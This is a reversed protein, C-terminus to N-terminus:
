FDFYSIWDKNKHEYEYARCCKKYKIGSGCLCPKNVEGKAGNKIKEDTITLRLIKIVMQIDKECLLRMESFHKLEDSFNNINFIISDVLNKDLSTFGGVSIIKQDTDNDVLVQHMVEVTEKNTQPWLSKALKTPQILKFGHKIGNYVDVTGGQRLTVQGEDVAEEIFLKGLMQLNGKEVKVSEDIVWNLNDMEEKTFRQKNGKVYDILKNMGLIKIIQDRSFGKHAQKYFGLIQSNNGEIYTDVVKSLDPESLLLLGLLALDEAVQIYKSYIELFLNKKAATIEISETMLKELKEQLVAAVDSRAVGNYLYTNQLILQLYNKSTHGKLIEKDLSTLNTFKVLQSKSM